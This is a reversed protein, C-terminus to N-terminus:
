GPKPRALGIAVGGAITLAFGIWTLVTPVEGLVRWALLVTMGPGISGIVASPAAGIRAVAMGTLLVPVVTAGLGLAAGAPWLMPSGHWASAPLAILAHVLVGSCAACMAWAVTRAGGLRRTFPEIGVLHVAFAAASAVVLGVGLALHEGALPQDLCSVAVGAWTVAAAAALLAGPRGRGAAWAFLMVLTPYIYLVIRELAVGIFRLGQFDLWSAVHFGVVGLALVALRSRAPVPERGRGLWWAALAFCPLSVLMRVALLATADVGDNLALKVLVGKTAFLIAAVAAILCGILHARRAPEM